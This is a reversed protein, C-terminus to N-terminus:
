PNNSPNNSYHKALQEQRFLKHDISLHSYRDTMSIDSHGIMEKVDKLTAGSLLLNSGFTHRLDHFHFDEIEALRCTEKWARNFNKIPNGNLHCFVLDSGNCDVKKRYRMWEQHNKWELLAEKTRPMLYETRKKKNKTRYFGIIGKESYDFNINSWSLSLIEQKSAGHEAGLFIIAPLYYKARIKKASEILRDLEHPFIFRNREHEKENLLPIKSAPNDVVAKIKLGHNFVAKIIKLYKNASIVSNKSVQYNRYDAIQKSTISCLLESGFECELANLWYVYDSYCKESLDRIILREKWEAKLSDAVQSFKLPNIGNSKEDPIKGSDLLSRLERAQNQADKYRKLTKYYIKRGTIPHTYQIAYSVGKKGIRKQVVVTSM